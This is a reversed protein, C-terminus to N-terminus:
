RRIDRDEDDLSEKDDNVDTAMFETTITVTPLEPNGSLGLLNFGTSVPDAFSIYSHVTTSHSSAPHSVSRQPSKRSGLCIAYVILLYSETSQQIHPSLFPCSPLCQCFIIQLPLWTEICM